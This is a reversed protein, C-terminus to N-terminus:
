YYLFLILFMNMLILHIIYIGATPCLSPFIYKPKENMTSKLSYCIGFEIMLKIGDKFRILHSYNGILFCFGYRDDSNDINLLYGVDEPTLVQINDRLLMLQVHEPSVFNAALKPVVQPDTCIIGGTLYVIEGISHLYQIISSFVGRDIGDAINAYLANETVLALESSSSHSHIRELTTQYLTPIEMAHSSFLKECVNDVINLLQSVSGVSKVASVEFIQPNIISLRPWMKQWIAIHQLQIKPILPDQKDARLGVLLIGWASSTHTPLQPLPLSSHLFDLWYAIQKTQEELPRSLDFCVLYLVM